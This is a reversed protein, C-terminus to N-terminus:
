MVKTAIPAGTRGDVVRVALFRAALGEYDGREGRRPLRWAKEPRFV